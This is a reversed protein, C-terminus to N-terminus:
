LYIKVRPHFSAFFYESRGPNFSLHSLLKKWGLTFNWRPYFTHGSVFTEEYLPTIKGQAFLRTHRADLKCELSYIWFCGGLPTRLFFTNQFYATFKGYFVWAWTHNWYLQFWMEAHTHWCPHKGTFKSCIKRIGKGSFVEPQSSRCM